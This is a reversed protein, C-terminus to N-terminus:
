VVDDGNTIENSELEKLACNILQINDHELLIKGCNPCLELIQQM